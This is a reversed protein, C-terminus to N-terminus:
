KKRFFVDITKQTANQKREQLIRIYCGVSNKITQCVTLVRDDNNDISQLIDLGSYIKSLANQIGGSSLVKEEVQEEEDYIPNNQLEILDENSLPDDHTAVLEVLDEVAVDELESGEIMAAIDELVQRQMQVIRRPAEVVDPWLNRWVGNMCSMKVEKWAEEINHISKMINYSKWWERMSQRGEGDTEHVLQSFTRRHYYAKFNAIAGQDMPQLISTTNPPLFKVYVKLDRPTDLSTPHGPANDLLLIVKPELGNRDCYSKVSPCFSNSYWEQFIERTVWAKRNSRWVVPLSTKDTGRMARPTESHYVLLPKLKFDGTANGGLLLTLRDKAAKFGSAQREEKSIFTRSPMKKWYLGTEDVNFILCAPIKERRVFEQFKDPFEAAAQIDASAAEGTIHINHLNSRQKFRHFWGRSAAFTPTASGEGEKTKLMEYLSKAKTCILDQSLPTNKKNLDEIWVSLLKEMRELISSRSRSLKTASIPTSSESSIKIKERNKYITRVTSESLGFDRGVITAKGGNEMRRLVKMKLELTVSKREKKKVPPM